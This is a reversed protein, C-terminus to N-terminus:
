KLPSEKKGRQDKKSFFFSEQTKHQTVILSIQNSKVQEMYKVVEPSCDHKAQQGHEIVREVNISRHATRADM